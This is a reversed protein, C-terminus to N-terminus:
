DINFLNENKRKKMSILEKWSKSSDHPSFHVLKIPNGILFVMRFHEYKNRHELVRYNDGINNKSKWINQNTSISDQHEIAIKKM